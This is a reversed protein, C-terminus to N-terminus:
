IRVRSPATVSKRKPNLRSLPPRCFTAPSPSRDNRAEIVELGKLCIMVPMPTVAAMWDDVAVVMMTTLKTFAPRSTSPWAMPTIMPALMPVVTVAQIMATKPKENLM